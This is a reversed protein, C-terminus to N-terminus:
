LFKRCYNRTNKVTKLLIPAFGIVNKYIENVAEPLYEHAISNRLERILIFDESKDVLGWKEAKHIRDRVTGREELELSEILRFIKQILIDSLRAFRSTLAELKDLEEYNYDAKNDIELCSNYSYEFISNAKELLAMQDKLFTIKQETM